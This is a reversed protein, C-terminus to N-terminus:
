IATSDVHLVAPSFWFVSFFLLKSWLWNKGCIECPSGRPDIGTRPPSINIARNPSFQSSYSSYNQTTERLASLLPTYLTQHPSCLSLSWKSSWSYIPPYYWVSDELLPIPPHVPNIKRLVPVSPPSNQIRYHVKPNWLIRPIEQSVSFRNSEWSPSYQM